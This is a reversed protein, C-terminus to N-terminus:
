RWYDTKTYNTKNPQVVLNYKDVIIKYAEQINHGEIAMISYKLGSVMGSQFQNNNNENCETKKPFSKKSKEKLDYVQSNLKKITKEQEEIKKDQSEIVSLAENLEEKLDRGKNEKVNFIVKDVIDNNISKAIENTFDEPPLQCNCDQLATRYIIDIIEETQKFFFKSDKQLEKIRQEVDINM